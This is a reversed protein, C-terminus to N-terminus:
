MCAAGVEAIDPRVARIVDALVKAPNLLAGEFWDMGFSASLLGDERFVQECASLLSCLARLLALEHARVSTM